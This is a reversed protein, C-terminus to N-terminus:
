IIIRTPIVKVNIKYIEVKEMPSQPTSNLKTMYHMNRSIFNEIKKFCIVFCNNTIYFNHITILGNFGRVKSLIDYM